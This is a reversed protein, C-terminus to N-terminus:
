KERGKESDMDLLLKATQVDTVLVNILEGVMAAHIAEVKISGFAVGVVKPIKMLDDISLNIVRKNWNSDLARGKSDIFNYLIDGTVNEAEKPDLPEIKHLYAKTMEYYAPQGGIGVVAVDVNKAMDFIDKIFHQRMFVEKSHEDDVVLPAHLQIANGGTKRAFIDCIVNAQIDTHAMGLGGVLPVFTLNNMNLNLNMHEAVLHATTGASIGIFMDPTVLKSIYRAAALGVSFKTQSPDASSVCVVDELDYKKRLRDEIAKFPQISEDHVVIEVLGKERALSLHKSVLSRSINLTQAIDEQTANEEYYMKAISILLRENSKTPM